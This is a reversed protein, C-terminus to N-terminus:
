ATGRSQHNRHTQRPIKQGNQLFVGLLRFDDGVPQHQTRAHDALLRSADICPQRDAQLNEVLDAADDTFLLVARTGIFDQHGGDLGGIQPALATAIVGIALFHQANLVTLLAIHEEARGILFHDGINEPGIHAGVLIQREIEVM